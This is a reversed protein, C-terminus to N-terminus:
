QAGTGMEAMRDQANECWGCPRDEPALELSRQFAARAPDYQGALFYAEGLSDYLNGDGPFLETNLQLLAIGWDAEDHSTLYLGVRNLIVRSELAEGRVAEYHSTVAAADQPTHAQVFQMVTEIASPPVPEPTYDEETLMRRVRSGMSEVADYSNNSMHVILVDDQPYRQITAIFVGNGGSHSMLPTGTVPGPRVIWGFGYYASHAESFVSYGTQYTELADGSFLVGDALARHWREMDNATSSLGGNGLLRWSVPEDQWRTLFTGVNARDRDPTGWYYGTAVQERTWDHLRYGTNEMGAPDLVVERLFSEYDQGSVDEIVAALVTYGANSYEYTEGPANNLPSAFLTALFDERGIYPDRDSGEFGGTEDSLGSSHTILQHLTIDAKDAPVNEFYTSLPDSLDLAGREALILMAAATFQKTLSGIDFLTDGDIGIEADEDAWGYGQEFVTEGRVSVHVVGYVGNAEAATFYSDVREAFGPAPQIPAEQAQAAQPLIFLASSALVTKILSM